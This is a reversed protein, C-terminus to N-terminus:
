EDVRRLEGRWIECQRCGMHAILNGTSSGGSVATKQRAAMWATSALENEGLLVVCCCPAKNTTLAGARKGAKSHGTDHSMMTIMVESGDFSQYDSRQRVAWTTYVDM